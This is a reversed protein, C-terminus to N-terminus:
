HVCAYLGCSCLSHLLILETKKRFAFNAPTPFENISHIFLLFFTKSHMQVSHAHRHTHCPNVLATPRNLSREHMLCRQQRSFLSLSLPSVNFITFRNELLSQYWLPHHSRQVLISPQMHHDSHWHFILKAESPKAYKTDSYLWKNLDECQHNQQVADVDVYGCGKQRHMHTLTHSSRKDQRKEKSLKNSTIQTRSPRSVSVIFYLWEDTLNVFEGGNGRENNSSVPARHLQM